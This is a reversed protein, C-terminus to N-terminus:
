NKLSAKRNKRRKIQYFVFIISGWLLGEFLFFFHQLFTKHHSIKVHGSSFVRLFIKGNHLAMKQTKPRHLKQNKEQEEQSLQRYKLAPQTGSAGNTYDAIYGKYWPRPVFFSANKATLIVDFELSNYSSKINKIKAGEVDDFQTISSDRISVPDVDLNYYEDGITNSFQERDGKYYSYMRQNIESIYNKHDTRLNVVPSYSILVIGLYVLTSLSAFSISWIHSFDNVLIWILLFPVFFLLRGTYQIAGLFGFKLLSNWPLVATTSVAMIAVLILLKQSAESLYKFRYVLYFFLIIALIDIKLFLSTFPAFLGSFKLQLINPVNFMSANEFPFDRATWNFYFIQSSVQELYQALYGISLLIGIFISVLFSIIKKVTLKRACLLVFILSYIALILTSLIHTQILLAITIGLLAPSYKNLFLVKYITYFLIPVLPMSMTMGYGFLPFYLPVILAGCLSKISDQSIKKFCYFSTLSTSFVLLFAFFDFALDARQVLMFLLAPLYFQWNGYFMPVAYGTGFAFIHNLNPLLDFHSISQSLGVIRTLHFVYDFVRSQTNIAVHSVLVFLLSYFFLILPYRYKKISDLIM